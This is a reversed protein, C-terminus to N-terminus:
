ARCKAPAFVWRRAVGGREGEVVVAEGRQVKAIIDTAVAEGSRLPQGDVRLLVDGDAIAFMATTGGTAQARLGGRTADVVIFMRAFAKAEGALANAVAPEIWTAVSRDAASLRCAQQIDMVPAASVGSAAVKPAGVAKPVYAKYLSLTSEAGAATTLVMADRTIRKVKEGGPMTDGEAVSLTRAGSKLYAREDAVGVFTLAGSAAPATSTAVASRPATSDDIAFPQWPRQKSLATQSWMGMLLAIAWGVLAAAVIWASITAITSLRDHTAARYNLAQRLM